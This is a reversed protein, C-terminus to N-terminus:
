DRETESALIAMLSGDTRAILLCRHDATLHLSVAAIAVDFKHIIALSFLLQTKLLLDIYM